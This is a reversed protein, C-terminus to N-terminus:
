LFIPIFFKNTNEALHIKPWRRGFYGAGESLYTASSTPEDTFFFPSKKKRKLPIAYNAENLAQIGNKFMSIIPKPQSHTRAHM